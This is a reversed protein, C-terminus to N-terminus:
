WKRQVNVPFVGTLIWPSGAIRQFSLSLNIGEQQNALMLIRGPQLSTTGWRTAPLDHNESRVGVTFIVEPVQDIKLYQHHTEDKWLPWPDLNIPNQNPGDDPISIPFEPSTPDRNFWCYEKSLLYEGSVWLHCLQGLSQEDSPCNGLGHAHPQLCQHLLPLHTRRWPDGRAPDSAERQPLPLELPQRQRLAWIFLLLLRRQWPRPVEHVRLDLGQHLINGGDSSLFTIVSFYRPKKRQCTWWDDQGLWWARQQHFIQCSFVFTFPSINTAFRFRYNILEYIVGSDDKLGLAELLTSSFLHRLFHEDTMVSNPVLYSNYIVAIPFLGCM